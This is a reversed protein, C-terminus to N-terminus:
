HYKLLYRKQLDTMASSRLSVNAHGHEEKFQQLERLREYWVSDNNQTKYQQREARADQPGEKAECSSTTPLLSCISAQRNFLRPPTEIQKKTIESLVNSCGISRTDSGDLKTLLSDSYRADSRRLPKQSCQPQSVPEVLVSEDELKESSPSHHINFLDHVYQVDEVSYYSSNGPFEAPITNIPSLSLPDSTFTIGCEKVDELRLMDGSSEYSNYVGSSDMIRDETDNKACTLDRPGMLYKLDESQNMRIQSALSSGSFSWGSSPSSERKKECLTERYLETGLSSISLRENKNCEGTEHPVQPKTNNYGAARLESRPLLKDM